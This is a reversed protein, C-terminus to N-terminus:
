WDCTAGLPGELGGGGLRRDEDGEDGEGDREAVHAPNPGNTANGDHTGEEDDSPNCESDPRYEDPLGHEDGANMQSCEDAQFIGEDRRLLEDASPLDNQVVRRSESQARSQEAADEARCLWRALQM